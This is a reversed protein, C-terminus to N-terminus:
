KYEGFNTIIGRKAKENYIGSCGLKRCLESYQKDSIDSVVVATADYSCIVASYKKSLTNCVIRAQIKKNNYRENEM